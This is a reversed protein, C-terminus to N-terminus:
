DEDKKKNISKYHLLLCKKLANEDKYLSCLDYKGDEYLNRLKSWACGGMCLPLFFCELCKPDNFCNCAIMYRTYLKSNTFENQNIYGVIKDHNSVDNWCKYIEGEPGIVYSNLGTATCTKSHLRPYFDVKLSDNDNLEYYLNRIDSHSMAICSLCNREENDIRLIGPYIELNFGKWKNKLEKYIDVFDNKNNQDLNIRLSLLTDPLEHLILDINKILRDYSGAHSGRVKRITDHRDKKGDLTIQISNLPHKKFFDIVTQDLNYGNTIINHVNLTIPLEEKIRSIIKQIVDFALLPEGGYWVLNIKKAQEHSKIFCLLYEITKDSMKKYTKNEEFCYPCEFNCSTTPAIVLSLTNQSYAQINNELRMQQLFDDDDNESVIIYSKELSLLLQKDISKLLSIDRTEKFKLLTNFLSISIQYFSNNKSVYILHKDNSENSFLYAYKSISKKMIFFYNERM